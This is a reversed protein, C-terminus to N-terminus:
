MQRVLTAVMLGSLLDLGTTAWGRTSGWRALFSTSGLGALTMAHTSTMLILFLGRAMDIYGIREPKARSPDSGARSNLGPGATVSTDSWGSPSAPRLSPPEIVTTSRLAAAVFDASPSM